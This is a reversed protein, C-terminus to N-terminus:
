PAVFSFHGIKPYLIYKANTNGKDVIQKYIWMADEPTCM